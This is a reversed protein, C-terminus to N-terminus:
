THKLLPFNYTKLRILDWSSIIGIPLEAATGNETILIAEIKQNKELYEKFIAEIDMVTADKGVIKTDDKKVIQFVEGIPQGMEISLKDINAAFWNAIDGDTLLGILKDEQYIPYQSYEKEQMCNILKSISSDLYFFEVPKSAISLATPPEALLSALQEMEQVVDQHPEAIYFDEKIKRHVMANRLKSSQKLLDFYQDIVQHQVRAKTLVETFSAHNNHENAYDCLTDHIQNFAAEFRESLEYGM